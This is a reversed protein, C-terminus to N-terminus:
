LPLEIDGEESTRSLDGAPLDRALRGGADSVILRAPRAAALLEPAPASRGGSPVLLADCTGRLRRAAAVQEEPSLDALDCFSRGGPGTVRLGVQGPDPQTPEPSLVELTLGALQLREGAEVQLLRAGLTVEALAATRWISGPPAGVPVVITQAPMDFGALGGAHGQGPGTIVLGKLRHQWPPM